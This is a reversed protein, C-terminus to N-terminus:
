ELLAIGIEVLGCRQITGGGPSLMYLGNCPTFEFAQKSFTLLCINITLQEPFCVFSCVFLNGIHLSPYDGSHLNGLCSSFESQRECM